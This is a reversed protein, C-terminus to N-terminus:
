TKENIEEKTFFNNIYGLLTTKHADMEVFVGGMDQFVFIEYGKEEEEIIDMWWFDM